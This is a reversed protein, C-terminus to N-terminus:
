YTCHKDWWVPRTWDDSGGLRDLAEQYNAANYLSESIPYSLRRPMKGDKADRTYANSPPTLKPFGSRRWNAFAEFPNTLHLIWLQMNIQEVESGAVLPNAALYADIEAQPVEMAQEDYVKLFRIAEDVGTAYLSEPSEAIAAINWRVKAEALLFCVEAYTMAIGPANSRLFANNLQPHCSGGQVAVTEGYAAKITSSSAMLWPWSDYWARGKPVPVFYRTKGSGSVQKNYLEDTLDIRKFPQKQAHPDDHYYTRGIVFTRPDKRPSHAYEPKWNSGLKKGDEFNIQDNSEALGYWLYNFFTECLFPSPSNDVSQWIQSLANRRYEGHGTDYIDSFSRFMAIDGQTMVGGVHGIAAEAQTRATEVDADALRMALRLRLSNGFRRWREWDGNFILDGSANGGDPGLAAVAEDLETFFDAYIEQQRDYKPYYDKDFYATGASFYPIDGYVDTLISFLYVRFIRAISRLNVYRPDNETRKVLDVINKIQNQYMFNWLSKIQNDDNRYQAGYNTADWNGQMQQTLSSMYRNCIQGIDMSGWQRLEIGTLQYNPNLDNSKTPDNNLDKDVCSVLLLLLSLVLPINIRKM